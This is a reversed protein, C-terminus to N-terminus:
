KYIGQKKFDKAQTMLYEIVDQLTSNVDLSRKDRTVKQMAYEQRKALIQTLEKVRDKEM